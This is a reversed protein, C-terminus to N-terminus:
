PTASLRIMSVTALMLSCQLCRRLGRRQQAGGADVVGDTAAKPAVVCVSEIWSIWRDFCILFLELSM